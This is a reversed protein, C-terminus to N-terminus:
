TDTTAKPKHNHSHNPQVDPSDSDSGTAAGSTGRTTVRSSAIRRNRDILTLAESVAADCPESHLLGDEGHQFYAKAVRRVAVQEAESQVGALRYLAILDDPLPGHTFYALRLAILAGRETLDLGMSDRLWDGVHFKVWHVDAHTASRLTRSPPDHTM